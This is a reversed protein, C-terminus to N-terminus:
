AGRSTPSTPIVVEGTGEKEVAAEPNVYNPDFVPGSLTNFDQFLGNMQDAYGPRAQGRQRFYYVSEISSCLTGVISLLIASLRIFLDLTASEFSGVIGILVPVVAACVIQIAYFLTGM